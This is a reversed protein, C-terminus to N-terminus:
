ASGALMRAALAFKFFYNNLSKLSEDVGGYKLVECVQDRARAIERRRAGKWREDALTLDFLELAREFAKDFYEQQGRERWSGARGVESGINGMQEALTLTYWKGRALKEHQYEM